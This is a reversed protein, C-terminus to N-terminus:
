GVDGPGKYANWADRMKLSREQEVWRIEEEDFINSPWSEIQKRM